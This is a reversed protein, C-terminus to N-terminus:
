VNGHVGGTETHTPKLQESIVLNFFSLTRGSVSAQRADSIEM